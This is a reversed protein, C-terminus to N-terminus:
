VQSGRGGLTGGGGNVEARRRSEAMGGGAEELVGEPGGVGWEFSGMGGGESCPGNLGGNVLHLAAAPIPDPRGPLANNSEAM